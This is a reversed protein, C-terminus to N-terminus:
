PKQGPDAQNRGGSLVWDAMEVGNEDVPVPGRPGVIWHHPKKQKVPPALKMEVGNEDVPIPGRPGVVWHHPETAIKARGGGNAEASVGVSVQIRRAADWLTDLRILNGTVSAQQAARCTAAGTDTETSRSSQTRMACLKGLIDAGGGLKAVWLVGFVDAAREQYQIQALDAQIRAPNALYANKTMPLGYARKAADSQIGITVLDGAQFSMRRSVGNSRELGDLCRGVERGVLFGAGARKQGMRAFPEVWVTGDDLASEDILIRCTPAVEFRGQTLVGLLGTKTEFRGNIAGSEVLAMYDPDGVRLARVRLAPAAATDVRQIEDALLDALRDPTPAPAPDNPAPIPFGTMPRMPLPPLATPLRTPPPLTAPLTAPPPLPPLALVSGAWLLVMAVAIKPNLAM